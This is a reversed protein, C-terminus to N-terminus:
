DKPTYVFPVSYIAKGRVNLLGPTGVHSRGPWAFGAMRTQNGILYNSESFKVEAM